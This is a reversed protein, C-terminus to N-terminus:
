GRETTLTCFVAGGWRVRVGGVGLLIRMLLVV